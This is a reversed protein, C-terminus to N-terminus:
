TVRMAKMSFDRAFFKSFCVFGKGYKGANKFYFFTSCGIELSKWSSRPKGLHLNWQLNDGAEGTEGTALCESRANFDRL